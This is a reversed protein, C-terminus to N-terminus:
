RELARQIAYAANILGIHSLGQPFNGILQGDDDIEEALLGLDNAHASVADFVEQARAVDGALAHCQALWYSCIVFAGEGGAGTWRRVLGDTTLQREIAAITCRMRADDAAVFGVIPMLLVGADLHDSGFAGTYAGVDAHWGQELIAGRVEDRAQSWREVSREAGLRPALKLARDLAVWCMLKSTVYQREGERGEWIGADPQQWTTAARDALGRLFEMTLEDFEDLQERLVYASELVEGLVDLQTQQWADNGVRVPASGRYGRLHGLEHETLDREGQVGFMIQVHEGHRPAGAARAMFAFYRQAEDPCAGVWLAKLTLSADRLWCFRYDWNSAGGVQEPLSTTPAAVIAGSPQYTLCQLVRGSSRVRETYPGNYGKHLASWSRWATITDSLAADPDLQAPREGIIGSAHQLAFGRREGACLVFEARANSGEVVLDRSSSLLLRAAGGITVIAGDDVVLAPEVLGYEPRPAFEVSVAVEGRVAEVVRILAHPSRQGIEHGREGAGLALADSLRLVGSATRFITELVMTQSVYARDVEFAGAPKISWHGADPDLLRAFASPADFRSPCWWDISGERSVLAASQCDGLLGYDGIAPTAEPDSM